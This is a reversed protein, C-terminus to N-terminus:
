GYEGTFNQSMSSQSQYDKGITLQKCDATSCRVVNHRSDEDILFREGNKGAREGSHLRLPQSKLQRTATGRVLRSGVFRPVELHAVAKTGVIRMYFLAKGLSWVAPQCHWIGSPLQVSLQADHV